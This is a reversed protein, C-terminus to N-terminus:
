VARRENLLRAMESKRPDKRVGLSYLRHRLHESSLSLGYFRELVKSMAEYSFDQRLSLLEDDSIGSRQARERRLRMEKTVRKRRADHKRQANRERYEESLWSYLTSSSPARGWKQELARQIDARRWGAGYMLRAFQVAKAPWRFSRADMLPPPSVELQM